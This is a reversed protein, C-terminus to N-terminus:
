FCYGHEQDGTRQADRAEQVDAMQSIEVASETPYMAGRRELGRSSQSGTSADSIKPIRRLILNSVSTMIIGSVEAFRVGGAGTVYRKYCGVVNCAADATVLRYFRTTM